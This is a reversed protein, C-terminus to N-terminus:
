LGGDSQAARAAALQTALYTLSVGMERTWGLEIRWDPSPIWVHLARGEGRRIATLRRTTTIADEPFRSQDEGAGYIQRLAAYTEEYRLQTASAYARVVKYIRGQHAMVYTRDAGDLFVLALSAGQEQRTVPPPVAQLLPRVDGGLCYSGFVLKLCPEAAQAPVVSALALTFLIRTIIGIGPRM